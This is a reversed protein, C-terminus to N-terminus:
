MEFLPHKHTQKHETNGTKKQLLNELRRISQNRATTRAYWKNLVNIAVNDIIDIYYHLNM